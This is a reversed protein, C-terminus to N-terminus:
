TPTPFVSDSPSLSNGNDALGAASNKEAEKQDDAGMKNLKAAAERLRGLVAPNKGSLASFEDDTFLRKGENDILSRAVLATLFKETDVVGNPFVDQEWKIRESASLARMAVNGGWEPVELTLVELDDAKLIQEKSLLM